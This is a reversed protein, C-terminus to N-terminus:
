SRRALNRRLKWYKLTVKGLKSDKLAEYRKLLRSYSKLLTEEKKYSELLEKDSKVKREKENLFQQQKKELKKKYSNELSKSKSKLLNNEESLKKETEQLNAIQKQLDTLLANKTEQNEEQIKLNNKNEELTKLNKKNKLVLNEKQKLYESELTHFNDELRKLLETTIVLQEKASSKKFIAGIWRGFFKVETISLNETQFDLLDQLYYTKKHDFYNNIGFPVTVIVQGEENLLKDAQTLFRKPDTIHELIEGFIITDYKEDGFDYNIFNATEFEVYEQTIKSEGSLLRKAYSISEELLDIGKVRKGERGLLIPTIGQSCGVDLILEGFSNECVWHVRDKVKGQFAEGMEGFYAEAVRDIPKKM